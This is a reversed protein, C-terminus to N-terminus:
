TEFDGGGGRGRRGGRRGPGGPEGPEVERPTRPEQDRREQRGGGGGRPGGRGVRGSGTRRPTSLDDGLGKHDDKEESSKRGRPTAAKWDNVVRKEGAAKSLDVTVTINEKETKRRDTEPEHPRPKRPTTVAIGEQEAKKKDEQIEQHRKVLAENKKRLAEIRKDLEADKEEKSKLDVASSM